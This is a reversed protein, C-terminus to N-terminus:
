LGSPWGTWGTPSISPTPPRCLSLPRSCSTDGGLDPSINKFFPAAVQTSFDPTLCVLTGVGLGLAWQLLFKNRVNLGKSRKKIQMLYDDVFGIAGYGITSLLAIWIHPNTLDAWLLTSVAVSFLILLGGMTPTGAKDLHSKPGNSRIYQRVQMKRLAEIFAPGLIFCIFFAVLCAYITRFTIYRFVNFVSFYEHLPYLLHYLM